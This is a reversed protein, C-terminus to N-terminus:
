RVEVLGGGGGGLTGTMRAFTINEESFCFTFHVSLFVLTYSNQHFGTSDYSKGGNQKM